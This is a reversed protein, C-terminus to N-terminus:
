GSPSRITHVRVSTIIDFRMVHEHHKKNIIIITGRHQQLFSVSHWLRAILKVLRLGTEFEDFFATKKREGGTAFEREVTNWTIMMMM